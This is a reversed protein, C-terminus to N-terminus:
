PHMEQWWPSAAADGGVPVDRRGGTLAAEDGGSRLPPLLLLPSLPLVCGTLGAPWAVAASAAKGDILSLTGMHGSLRLFSLAALRVSISEFLRTLSTGGGSHSNLASFPFVGYLIMARASSSSHHSLSM